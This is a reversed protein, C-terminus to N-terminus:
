LFYTSDDNRLLSVFQINRKIQYIKEDSNSIVKIKIDKEANLQDLAIFKIIAFHKFFAKEKLLNYTTNKNM